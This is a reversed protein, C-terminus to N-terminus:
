TVEDEEDEKILSDIEARVIWIEDIFQISNPEKLAVSYWKPLINENM